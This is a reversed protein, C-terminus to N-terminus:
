LKSYFLFIYYLFITCEFLGKFAADMRRQLGYHLVPEHGAVHM